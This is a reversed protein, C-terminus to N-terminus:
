RDKERKPPWGEARCRAPPQRRALRVHDIEDGLLDIGRVDLTDPAVDVLVFQTASRVVPFSAHEGSAHDLERGGGGSIVHLVRATPIFECSPESRAYLHQHGSVVLDVSSAELTPGIVDRLGTTVSKPEPPAYLPEHLVVIRWAAPPATALAIGLWTPGRLDRLIATSAFAVLRAAPWDVVGRPGAADDVDAAPGFARRYDGKDGLDHNGPVPLLPVRELLTRYPGFFRADLEDVRGHPYALDGVHVLLDPRAALIVAPLARAKRTGDGSDGVVAFRWPTGAPPATRFRVRRAGVRCRYEHGAVLGQLRAHRLGDVLAADASARAGDRDFCVVREADPLTWVVSAADATVRTTYLWDDPLARSCASACLALLPAAFAVLARRRQSTTM